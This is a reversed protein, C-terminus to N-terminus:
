GKVTCMEGSLAGCYDCPIHLKLADRLNRVMEWAARCEEKLRVEPHRKAKAEMDKIEQGLEFSVVENIDPRPDDPHRLITITVPNNGFM